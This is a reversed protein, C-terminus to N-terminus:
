LWKRRQCDRRRGFNLGDGGAPSSRAMVSIHCDPSLARLAQIVNLGVIGSGVVLGQQGPKPLRKLVTHVAVAFPEVMVAQDDNMWEPAQYVETEHVTYSDSWGGGIGKAGGWLRMRACAPLQGLWVITM